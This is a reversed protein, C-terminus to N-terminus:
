GHMRSTVLGGLGLAAHPQVHCSAAARPTATRMRIQMQRARSHAQRDATCTIHYMCKVLKDHCLLRLSPPLTM